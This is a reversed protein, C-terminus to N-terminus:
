ELGDNLFHILPMLAEFSDVCTKVMDESTLDDISINRIATFSKKRLFAIYPHDKPFGKPATKLEPGGDIDGYTKKFNKGELVKQLAGGHLDIHNRIKKLMPSPPMYVGGGIFSEMPDVNLYYGSNGSKKGGKAISIGFNTKYPAKNKSFRVDRNIRFLCDKPEVGQLSPDFETMGELLRDTVAIIDKRVEKYRKRNEDFWEKNNNEKLDLLFNFTETKIM